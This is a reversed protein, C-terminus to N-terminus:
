QDPMGLSQLVKVYDNMFEKPRSNVFDYNEIWWKTISNKMTKQKEFHDKALKLDGEKHYIYALVTHFTESAGAWLYDKNSHELAYNKAKEYDGSKEDFTKMMIAFLYYVKIWASYHPAIRHVKEYTEISGDYDSCSRQTDAVMAIDVIEESLISMKDIRGCAADFDGLLQELQAAVSMAGVYDPDKELVGLALKHAKILDEQPNKSIGLWTKQALQWARNVDLYFNDPELRKNIKWLEEARYHGEPTMLQFATTGLLNNKYVEPTFLRKVATSEVGGLTIEIQLHSLVSSGVQDQINFIDDESFDYIESWIIDNKALDKLEVNIRTKNGSVQIGGGLVFQAGYKNKIEEDPIQNKQVYEGTSKGLVLLQEHQSLTTILHSTMGNGIYDNEKKGSQNAFPMVLIAPRDSSSISKKVNDQISNKYYFFGGIGLVLIGVIAAILPVQSKSKTKVKREHSADIVVDVAHLLTDKVKQEGLDNFQFDTKKNVIEHVNKSLCIGGPQALAELRAAVNVGDGYLNDGEIVVDGMNVGVRFEMQEEEGVSNNREKITNQFETACIVAEVASQFEALVSDGATNFIRGHHDKVLGEIIGQCVKLNKLTQEENEEMKISYGVVDTALIVTVKRETKSEAM